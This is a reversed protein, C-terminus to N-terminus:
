EARSLRNTELSKTSDLDRNRNLVLDSKTGNSVLRDAGARDHASTTLSAQVDGVACTMPEGSVLVLRSEKNDMVIKLETARGSAELRARALTVLTTPFQSKYENSPFIRVAVTLQGNEECLRVIEQLEDRYFRVNQVQTRVSSSQQQQPQVDM